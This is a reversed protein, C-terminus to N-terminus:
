DKKKAYKILNKEQKKLRYEVKRVIMCSTELFEKRDRAIFTKEGNDDYIIIVPLKGKKFDKFQMELVAIQGLMKILSDGDVGPKPSSTVWGPGTEIDYRLNFIRDQLQIIKKDLKHLAFDNIDNQIYKELDDLKTLTINTSKAANIAGKQFGLETILVGRDAGVDEVISKLVLVKEKSVHTRWRKCEIVWRSVIGFKRFIVWVDIKHKARTGEVTANIKAFCGLRRFLKAVTKQYEQWDM